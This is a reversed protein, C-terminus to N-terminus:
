HGTEPVDKPDLDRTERGHRTESRAYSREDVVVQIGAVLSPSFHFFLSFVLFEGRAYFMTRCLAM